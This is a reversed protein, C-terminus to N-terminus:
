IYTQIQMFKKHIYTHIFLKIFTSYTKHHPTSNATTTQKRCKCVCQQCTLDILFVYIEITVISNNPFHNLKLYRSKFMEFANPFNFKITACIFFLFFFVLKVSISKISDFTIKWPPNLQLHRCYLLLGLVVSVVPTNQM